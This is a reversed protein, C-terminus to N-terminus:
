TGSQDSQIPVKMAARRIDSPTEAEHLASNIQKNMREISLREKMERRIRLDEALSRKPALASRTGDYADVSERM